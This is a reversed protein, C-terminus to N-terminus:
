PPLHWPPPDRRRGRSQDVSEALLRGAEALFAARRRAAEADDAFGRERLAGLLMQEAVQRQLDLAVDPPTSERIEIGLAESRGDDGIVPWVSCHWGSARESSADIREDLIEVGERFARDLIPKLARGEAATLANAISVGLAGGNAVGALRCFASNAYVLAHVPGRTIAFPLPAQQMCRRLAEQISLETVRAAAPRKRPKM